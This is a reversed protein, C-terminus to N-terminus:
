LLCRIHWFDDDNDDDYENCDDDDDDAGDDDDDDNDDVDDVDDYESCPVSLCFIMKREDDACRCSVFLHFNVMMM